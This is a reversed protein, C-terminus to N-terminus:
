PLEHLHATVHGPGCGVDAVPGGGAAHVLEAFSALAARLHPYGTLADRLLDAYGVAVADYSDRTDIPWDDASM